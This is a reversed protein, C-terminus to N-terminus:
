EEERRRLEEDLEAGVLFVASTALVYATLVLFSALNGVASKYNAVVTVWFGFGLSLLLWGAVITASGASAWKVDPHEAPAYRVLLGVAVGLLVVAVPWRGLGFLVHLVDDHVRPAVIVVLTATIVLLSVAVALGLTVLTLRRWPRREEVEHITNLANTVARVGRMAQWLLLLSAFALLGLQSHRFIEQVSYDIARFVPGSLREQLPPAISNDWTSELGLAGLLAVGLLVLPVLAVLLRFAIATAHTTLRHTRACEVVPRALSVLDRIRPVGARATRTAM